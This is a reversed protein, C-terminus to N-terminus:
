TVRERIASGAGEKIKLHSTIRAFIDLQSLIEAVVRSLVHSINLKPFTGIWRGKLTRVIPLWNKCNM